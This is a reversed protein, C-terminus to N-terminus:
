FSGGVGLGFAGAVVLPAIAAAPTGHGRAALVLVAGVGAAAIGAAGFAAGLPGEALARSRTSDLDNANSGPPCLGRPCARDLTAIDELRAVLLVAGAAVLAGGVGLLVVGAPSAHAPSAEVAVPTATPAPSPLLAPAPAATAPVLTLDAVQKALADMRNEASQVVDAVQADGRGLAVAERYAAYAPVPDGLGEYCTGIRYEIAATDRVGQVQRFKQLADAYQGAQEERLADAFLARAVALADSGADPQARAVTAALLLCSAVLSV